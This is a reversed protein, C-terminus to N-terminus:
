GLVNAKGAGMAIPATPPTVPKPMASPMATASSQVPNLAPSGMAGRVMNAIKEDLVHFQNLASRVGDGYAKKLTM